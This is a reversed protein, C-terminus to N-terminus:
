LIRISPRAFDSFVFKTNRKVGNPNKLEVFDFNTETWDAGLEGSTSGEFAVFVADHNYFVYAKSAAESTGTDGLSALSYWEEIYYTDPDYDLGLNEALSDADELGDTDNGNGPDRYSIASLQALLHANPIVSFKDADFDEQSINPGLISFLMRNM